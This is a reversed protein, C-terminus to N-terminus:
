YEKAWDGALERRLRSIYGYPRKLRRSKKKKDKKSKKKKNLLSRYRGGSKRSTKRSTVM